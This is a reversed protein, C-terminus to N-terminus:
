LNPTDQCFNSIVWGFFILMQIYQGAEVIELISLQYVANVHVCIITKYAPDFINLTFMGSQPNYDLETRNSM